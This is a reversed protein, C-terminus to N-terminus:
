RGGMKWTVTIDEQLHIAGTSVGIKVRRLHGLFITRDTMIIYNMQMLVTNWLWVQNKNIMLIATKYQFPGVAGQLSWPLVEIVEM